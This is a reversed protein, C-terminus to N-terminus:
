NKVLPFRTLRKSLPDSVVVLAVAGALWFSAFTLVIRKFIDIDCAKASGFVFRGSNQEAIEELTRLPVSKYDAFMVNIAGSACVCIFASIM